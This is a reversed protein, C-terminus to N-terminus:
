CPLGRKKRAAILSEVIGTPLPAGQFGCGISIHPKNAGHYDSGASVGIGLRSSLRQLRASAVEDQSSHWAELGGLGYPILRSIESELFTAPYLLPHAVIPTAGIRSLLAVAEEPSSSRRKVYARGNKGLWEKFALAASEVYGKSVLLQAIHPRGACDGGLGALEEEEIRFGHSRLKELIQRNRAQRSERQERLYSELLSNDRPLWLGLIHMSGNAAETSLECGRIFELGLGAATEEAEDLGALTDHDALAFVDMGADRVKRAVTSPTDTGDSCSSHIHLDAKKM